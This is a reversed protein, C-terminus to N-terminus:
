ARTRWRRTAACVLNELGGGTRPRAATGPAREYLIVKGVHAAFDEGIEAETAASTTLNGVRFVGGASRVGKAPRGRVGFELQRM